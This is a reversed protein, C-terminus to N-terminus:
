EYVFAMVSILITLYFAACLWSLWEGWRVYFSFDQGLPLPVEATLVAQTNLPAQSLIEGRSSIVASIGTNAARLVPRRLEVARLVSAALHQYPADTDFFWADNTLNVFFRAGAHAQSRWLRGFVSEYCITSGFAIQDMALLPQEWKGASFGGLEGLVQVQPFIERVWKEFPIFEGFPVLQTKDYVATMEGTPSFLVASVYQKKEEERNSGVLQWANHKGLGQKLWDLYPEEQIPGPTVSEPWLVLMPETAAARTNLESLTNHIEEEFELSWKKYQDINPQVIAAQLRLLTRSTDHRFYWYGYGYTMLFTLLSLLLHFLGKRLSPTAFAYGISLGTFAVVFSVGAAGTWSAIQIVQPLNWQSYALTFWPFGLVYSALVEHGWELAVWGMAALLPFLGHLRKLYFCSVGFFAFQLAMLASLGLWAAVSLAVSLGGGQWCTIFIWYYLGSYVFIGTLWSYWFSSSLQQCRVLAVTFPALALWALLSYSPKPYSLKFLVATLLACLLVFCFRGTEILFRKWGSPKEKAQDTSIDNLFPRHFLSM